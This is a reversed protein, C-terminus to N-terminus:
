GPRTKPRNAPTEGVGSGLRWVSMAVWATMIASEAM